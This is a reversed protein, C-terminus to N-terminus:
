QGNDMDIEAEVEYAADGDDQKKAGMRCIAINEVPVDQMWVFDDYRDLIDRADVTIRERRKGHHGGGGRKEGKVYVTNLITAHLLLPRDDEAMVGAQQFTRKINECFKQLTGDPDVPPSYLATAKSPSSQMSHLGRLTVALQPQLPKLPDKDQDQDQNQDKGKSELAAQVQQAAVITGLIQRPALTRLLETAKDLGENKPFSMVGLTLHLTGVPRIAEAPVGFSQPSTVDSGFSALASALQPRSLSTVLPICLFHTPPPRPPM